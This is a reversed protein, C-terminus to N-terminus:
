AVGSNMGIIQDSVSATGLKESRPSYFAHLPTFATSNPASLGCNFSQESLVIAICVVSNIHTHRGAREDEGGDPTLTIYLQMHPGIIISIVEGSLAM